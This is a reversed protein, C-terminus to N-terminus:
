SEGRYLESQGRQIVEAKGRLFDVARQPLHGAKGGRQASGLLGFDAGPRRWSGNDFGM